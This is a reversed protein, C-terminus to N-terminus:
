IEEVIGLIEALILFIGGAILGGNTICLGAWIRIASKILSIKFHWNTKSEKPQM